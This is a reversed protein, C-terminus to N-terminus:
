NWLKFTLIDITLVNVKKKTKQNTINKETM